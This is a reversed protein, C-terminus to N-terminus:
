KDLPNVDVILLTQCMNHKYIDMLDPRMWMDRFQPPLMGFNSGSFDFQRECHCKQEFLM